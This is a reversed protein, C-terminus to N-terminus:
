TIARYPLISTCSHNLFFLFDWKAEIHTGVWNLYMFCHCCCNKDEYSIGGCSQLVTHGKSYVRRNEANVSGSIAPHLVEIRPNHTAPVIIHLGIPHTWRHKTNVIWTCTTYVLLIMLIQSILVACLVIYMPNELQRTIWCSTILLDNSRPQRPWHVLIIAFPHFTYKLRSYGAVHKSIYHQIKTNM